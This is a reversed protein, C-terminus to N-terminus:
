YITHISFHIGTYRTQAQRYLDSLAQHLTTMLLDDDAARHHM